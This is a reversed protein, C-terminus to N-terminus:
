WWESSWRAHVFSEFATLVFIHHECIEYSARTSQAQVASDLYWIPVTAAKALHQRLKINIKRCAKKEKRGLSPLLRVPNWHSRLVTLAIM